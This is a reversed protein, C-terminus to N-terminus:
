NLAIKIGWHVVNWNFVRFLWVRQTDPRLPRVVHKKNSLQQDPHPEYISNWNKLKERGPFSYEFKLNWTWTIGSVDSIRWTDRRYDTSICYWSIDRYKCRGGSTPDLKSPHVDTGETGKGCLSPEQSVLISLQHYSQLVFNWVGVCECVFM